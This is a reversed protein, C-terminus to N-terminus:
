GKADIVSLPDVAGDGQLIQYDFQTSDTIITLLTEGGRVQAGEQVACEVNSRLLYRTKYGSAHEIELIFPYTEDAGIATVTGDGAAIVTGGTYTTFSIYPQEPSFRSTLAGVGVSPYHSPFSSDAESSSGSSTEEPAATSTWAQEQTVKEAELRQMDGRLSKNEAELKQIQTEQQVLTKNRSAQKKATSITQFIGFGGFLCLLLALGLIARLTMRSINFQRNQTNLNSVLLVSFVEKRKHRRDNM